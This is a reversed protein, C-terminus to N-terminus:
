IYVPHATLKGRLSSKACRAHAENTVAGVRIVSPSSKAVARAVLTTKDTRTQTCWCSTLAVIPACTTVVYYMAGPVMFVVIVCYMPGICLVEEPCFLLVAGDIFM